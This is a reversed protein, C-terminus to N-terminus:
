PPVHISNSNNYFSDYTDYSNKYFLLHIYSRSSWKWYADSGFCSKISMTPKESIENNPLSTTLIPKAHKGRKHFLSLRSGSIEIRFFTYVHPSL